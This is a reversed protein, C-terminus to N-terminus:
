EQYLAHLAETKKIMKLTGYYISFAIIILVSYIVIKYIPDLDFLLNSQINFLNVALLTVFSVSIKFSLYNRVPRKNVFLVIVFIIASFAFSGLLIQSFLELYQPLQQYVVILSLILLSPFLIKLSTLLKKGESLYSNLLEKRVRGTMSDEIVSFGLVGFSSHVEKFAKELALDPNIEMKTEIASAVHDLIEYQLDTHTFGRKSILSKIKTIQETSLKM